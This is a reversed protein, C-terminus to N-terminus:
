ITKERFLKALTNEAEKIQQWKAARCRKGVNQLAIKLIEAVEKYKGKEEYLQVAEWQAETWRGQITDILLLITNIKNDFFDDGSKLITNYLLVKKTRNLAERAYYFASGSMEWPLKSYFGDEIDGFGIGIRLQFPRCKYRLKRIIQPYPLFNKIIGQIKDGRFVVFSTLFSIDNFDEMKDKLISSVNTYKRSNIVDATIVTVKDM